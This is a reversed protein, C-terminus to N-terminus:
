TRENNKAERIARGKADKALLYAICTTSISHLLTDLDAGFGIVCVGVFLFWGAAILVMAKTQESTMEFMNM